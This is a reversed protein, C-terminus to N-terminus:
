AREIWHEVAKSAVYKEVELPVTQPENVLKDGHEVLYRLSLSQLALGLDMIEIPNGDGAALNVLNGETLLFIKKGSPLRYESIGKRIERCSLAMSKLGTVDLESAFHGANAVIANPPLAEFHEQRFVNDHGTVSM